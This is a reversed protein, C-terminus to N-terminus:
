LASTWASRSKPDAGLIKEVLQAASDTVRSIAGRHAPRRRAGLPDAGFALALPSESSSPALHSSRDGRKKEDGPRGGPRLERSRRFRRFWDRGEPFPTLRLRPGELDRDPRVERTIPGRKDSVLLLQTAM